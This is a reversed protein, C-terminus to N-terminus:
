SAAVCYDKSPAIGFARSYERSFQSASAYGVQYAMSTVDFIGSRLQERAHQLRLTKQFQLPSVGTVEKFHAHFSSTSMGANRALEEVRLTDTFHQKIWSIASSIREIKSDNVGIQAVAPGVPSRLLRLLIEEIAHPVLFETDEQLSITEMMRRAANVIRESSDGVFITKTREAKPLGEPFVRMTLRNLVDVDLPIVMCYYPQEVSAQIISVAIPLEAAYVVMKSADYIFSYNNITVRKAGQPIICISPQSLTYM